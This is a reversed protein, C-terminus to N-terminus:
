VYFDKLCIINIVFREFYSERAAVNDLANIICTLGEFFADDYIHETDDGVRNEHSVINLSENM